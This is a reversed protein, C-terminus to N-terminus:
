KKGLPITVYFTSGKNEESEFWVKGGIKNLVARVLYLGLGTGETDLKRVNDARFLKSFIKPQETVPIGYGTDAIRVLIDSTKVLQSIEVEITGSNPTYKVANTLLNQFIIMAIKPDIRMIIPTSPYMEKLKLKKEEIKNKLEALAKKSITTIDLDQPEFIFTGLDLRSVNLLASVLEIMRENAHHIEFIYEQQKKTIKGADGAGLMESYWNIISLPTRLQHSTLSVFENKAKDIQKEKTFDRFIIIAGIIERGSRLPTVTIAAPFRSGDLRLWYYPTNITTILKKGTTIAQQILHEEASLKKGDEDEISVVDGLKKGVMEKSSWGLMEHTSKNVFLIIGNTNTAIIGEGINALLVEDKAKEQELIHMSDALQNTRDHVKDELQSYSHQVMDIMNNFTSELEGIEDSSHVTARKSLDGRSINRSVEILKRLPDVYIRMVLLLFAAFGAFVLAMTIILIRQLLGALDQTNSKGERNNKDVSSNFQALESRMENLIPASLSSNVVNKKQLLQPKYELSQIIGPLGAQLFWDKQLKEINRLKSEEEINGRVLKYQLAVLEEFQKESDLIHNLIRENGTNLYIQHDAHIELLLTEIDKSNNQVPLDHSLVYQTTELSHNITRYLYIPVFVLPLIIVLFLLFLKTQIKM